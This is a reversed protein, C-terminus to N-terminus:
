WCLAFITQSQLNHHSVFRHVICNTFEDNFTTGTPNKSSLNNWFTHTLQKRISWVELSSLKETQVIWFWLKPLLMPLYKYQNGIFFVAWNTKVM